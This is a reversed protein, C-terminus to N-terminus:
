KLSIWVLAMGIPLLWGSTTRALVWSPGRSLIFALWNAAARTSGCVHIVTGAPPRWSIAKTISVWASAPKLAGNESGSAARQTGFTFARTPLAQQWIGGM